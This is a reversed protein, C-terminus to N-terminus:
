CPIQYHSDVFEVVEKVDMVIEMVLVHLVDHLIGIRAFDGDTVTIRQDFCGFATVEELVEIFVAHFSTDVVNLITTYM